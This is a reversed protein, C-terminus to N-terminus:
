CIPPQGHVNLLNEDAQTCKIEVTKNDGLLSEDNTVQLFDNQVVDDVIVTSLQNEYAITDNDLYSNKITNIIMLYKM